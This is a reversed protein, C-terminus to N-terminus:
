PASQDPSDGHLPEDYPGRRGTLSDALWGLTSVWGQRHNEAAEPRGALGTHRLTLLIGGETKTLAIEVYIRRMHGTEGRPSEWEFPSGASSPVFSSAVLGVDLHM